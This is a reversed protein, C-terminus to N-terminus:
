VGAYGGDDSGAVIGAVHTGHGFEDRGGRASDTFDVSVVIRGRLAKHNAVGSDIVAVGIGRGTFGPLGNGGWVQTAGTSETTVAMTRQVRVDGSAHDVDPDQSLATLQGGTVELVAGGRLSKKIRAGYRAALEQVTEPTGSVIVSTSDERGAAVRDALDRSLRARHPAAYAPVSVLGALSFAVALSMWRSASCSALRTQSM